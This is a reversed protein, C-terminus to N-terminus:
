GIECNRATDYGIPEGNVTRVEGFRYYSLRYMLSDLMTQSANQDVRYNGNNYFNSEKVQPFVGAAIRVM